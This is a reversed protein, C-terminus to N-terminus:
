DVPDNEHHWSIKCGSRINEMAPNLTACRANSQRCWADYRLIQVKRGTESAFLPAMSINDRALQLQTQEEQCWGHCRMRTVNAHQWVLPRHSMRWFSAFSVPTGVFLIDQFLRACHKAFPEEPPSWPDTIKCQRSAIPPQNVVFNRYSPAHVVRDDRFRADQVLLIPVNIITDIRAIVLVDHRKPQSLVIEVARAIHLIQYYWRRMLMIQQTPLVTGDVGRMYASAAPFYTSAVAKDAESLKETPLLVAHVSAPAFVDKAERTFHAAATAFAGSSQLASLSADTRNAASLLNRVVLPADCWSDIDVVIYCSANNPRVLFRLHNDVWAAPTSRGYWRGSYIVAVRLAPLM